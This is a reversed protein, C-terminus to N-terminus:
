FIENKNEWWPQLNKPILALMFKEYKIKGKNQSAGAAHINSQKSNNRNENISQKYTRM